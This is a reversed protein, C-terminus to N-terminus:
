NLPKDQRFYLSESPHIESGVRKVFDNYSILGDKDEDLHNFLDEFTSDPVQLGWHILIFKLESKKM